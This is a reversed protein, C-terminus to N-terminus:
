GKIRKLLSNYLPKDKMLKSVAEDEDLGITLVKAAKTPKYEILEGRKVFLGKELAEKVVARYETSDNEAADIVKQPENECARLCTNLQIEKDKGLYGFLASLNALVTDDANFVVSKARFVDKEKSNSIQAAKKSDLEKIRHIPKREEDAQQCFPSNRIFDVLTMQSIVKGNEDKPSHAASVKMGEPFAEVRNKFQIRKKIPNGQKDVGTQYIVENYDEDNYSDFSFGGSKPNLLAFKVSAM